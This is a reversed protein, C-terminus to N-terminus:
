SNWSDDGIQIKQETFGLFNEDCVVLIIFFCLNQFFSSAKAVVWSSIFRLRGVWCDIIRHRDEKMEEMSIVMSIV